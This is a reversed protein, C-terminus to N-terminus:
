RRIFWVARPGFLIARSQGKLRKNQILLIRYLVRFLCYSGFAMRAFRLFVHGDIECLIIIYQLKYKPPIYLKFTKIIIANVFTLLNPPRENKFWSKLGNSRTRKFLIGTAARNWNDTSLHTTRFTITQSISATRCSYSM